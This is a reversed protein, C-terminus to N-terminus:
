ICFDWYLGTFDLFDSKLSSNSELEVSSLSESLSDLLSISILLLGVVGIGSLSSPIARGCSSCVSIGGVALSMRSM